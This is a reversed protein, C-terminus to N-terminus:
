KQRTQVSMYESIDYIENFNRGICAIGTKKKKKKKEHLHSTNETCMQPDDGLKIM